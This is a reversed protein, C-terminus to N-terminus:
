MQSSPVCGEEKGGRHLAQFLMFQELQATDRRQQVLAVLAPILGNCQGLLICLDLVGNVGGGLGAVAVEGLSQQGEEEALAVLRGEAGDQERAVLEHPRIDGHLERPPM